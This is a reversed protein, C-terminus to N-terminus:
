LAKRRETISVVGPTVSPDADWDYMVRIRKHQWNEFDIQTVLAVAGTSAWSAQTMDNVLDYGVGLTDWQRTGAPVEVDNSGQIVVTCTRNAAAAGIGGLLYLQFAIDKFGDMVIGDASPAYSVGPDAVVNQNNVIYAPQTFKSNLPAIEESRNSDTAATYAKDQYLLYLYYAVDTVHFPSTVGAMSVVGAVATLYVGNHGNVYEVLLGANTRVAIGLVECNADDVVFPFGAATVSTLNTFVVAGDAPSWHTAKVQAMNPAINTTNLSNTAPVYAKDQYCLYVYYNLDTADFPAAGAGAITVVNATASLSVGNHGNVYEAVDGAANRVVVGLVECNADAVTFPFGSLTLTTPSTNVAAGDQPTWHTAKVNALFPEQAPCCGGGGGGGGANGSPTSVCVAFPDDKHGYGFPQMVIWPVTLPPANASDEVAIVQWFMKEADRTEWAYHSSIGAAIRAPDLAVTVLFDPVWRGVESAGSGSQGDRQKSYFRWPRVIAVLDTYNNYDAYFVTHVSSWDIVPVGDTESEPPSMVGDTLFGNGLRTMQSPALRDRGQLPSTRTDTRKM